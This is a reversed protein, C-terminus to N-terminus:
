SYANSSCSLFQIISQGLIHVKEYQKFAILNCYLLVYTFVQGMNKDLTPGRLELQLLYDNQKMEFFYFGSNRSVSKWAMLIKKFKCM